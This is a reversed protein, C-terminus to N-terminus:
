VTIILRYKGPLKDAYLKYTYDLLEYKSTRKGNINSVSLKVIEKEVSDIKIRAGATTELKKSQTELVTKAEISLHEILNLKTKLTKM